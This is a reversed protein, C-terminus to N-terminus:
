RLGCQLMKEALFSSYSLVKESTMERDHLRALGKGSINPAWSVTQNEVRWYAFVKERKRWFTQFCTQFLFITLSGLTDGNVGVVTLNIKEAQLIMRKPLDDATPFSLFIKIPTWQVGFILFRFQLGGEWAHLNWHKFVRSVLSHIVSVQWFKHSKSYWLIPCILVWNHCLWLKTKGKKAREKGMGM